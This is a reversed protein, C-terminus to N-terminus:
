TKRLFIYDQVLVDGNEAVIPDGSACLLEHTDRLYMYIDDFSKQNVFLSRSAELTIIKVRDLMAKAGLLTQYEFGEVDIHMIINQGLDYGMLSELIDLKIVRVKDKVIPANAHDQAGKYTSSFQLMSSAQSTASSLSRNFEAECNDDGIALKMLSLNPLNKEISELAPHCDISPEIMVIPINRNFVFHAALSNMGINAGVDLYSSAGDIYKRLMNLCHMEQLVRIELTDRTMGIKISRTIVKRLTRRLIHYTFKNKRGVKLRWRLLSLARYIKNAVQLM